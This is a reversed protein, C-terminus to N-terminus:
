SLLQIRDIVPEKGLGILVRNIANLEHINYNPNEILQYAKDYYRNAFKDWDIVELPKPKYLWSEILRYAAKEDCISNECVLFLVTNWAFAEDEGTDVHNIYYFFNKCTEKERNEIYKIIKDRGMSFDQNVWFQPSKNKTEAKVVNGSNNYVVPGDYQWNFPSLDQNLIDYGEDIWVKKIEDIIEASILSYGTLEQVYLLKRLLLIRAEITFSGPSYEIDYARDFEEYQVVREHELYEQANKNSIHAHFLSMQDKELKDATLRKSIKKFERRKIPIRYRADNRIEALICKYDYLPQLTKDKEVLNKMMKDEKIVTCVICGNRGNGCSNGQEGDTKLSCEFIDDPYFNQLEEVTTGWTFANFDMFYAWIQSSDLEKIPHFVLVNSRSHHKAFKEDIQYKNISAQRKQSESSRVGLHLVVDYEDGLCLSSQSIIYDM